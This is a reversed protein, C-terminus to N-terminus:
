SSMTTEENNLASKVICDRWDYCKNLGSNMTIEEDNLGSKLIAIDGLQKLTHGNFFILWVSYIFPRTNSGCHQQMQIKTPLPYHTLDVINVNCRYRQQSLTIHEIWLTTAKTTAKTDKNPSRLVLYIFTTHEIWAEIYRQQLLESQIYSTTHEIWL